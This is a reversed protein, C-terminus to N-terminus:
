LMILSSIQQNKLYQLAFGNLFDNVTLAKRAEPQLQLLEIWADAARVRFFRKLDTEVTGPLVNSDSYLVNTKLVKIMVSLSSNILLNSYAAPYPALGRVLNHIRVAPQDWQIHAMDRNLKPAKFLQTDPAIFQSQDIAEVGGKEILRLTEIVLGAGAIRLKDHLSGADDLPDLSIAKQLLIRGTDIQRDLFFTTLGTSTEGNIIAHNIPAAGRYQPLLSAHLNFTGLPPLSWVKEPLFRFAVVVQLDVKLDALQQHFAAEKLDVPQLVPIEQSVAYQKVASSVLKLGRGSPKDPATVVAVVTYGNQVISELAPVAFEPTGYFVINM